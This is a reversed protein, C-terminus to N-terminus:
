EEGIGYGAEKGGWTNCEAGPWHIKVPYGRPDGDRRVAKVNYTGRLIACITAHRSDARVENEQRQAETMTENCDKLNCRGIARAHKLIESADLAIREDTLMDTQAYKALLKKLAELEDKRRSNM